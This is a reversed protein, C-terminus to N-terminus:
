NMYQEFYSKKDPVPPATQKNNRDIEEVLLQERANLKKKPKEFNTVVNGM